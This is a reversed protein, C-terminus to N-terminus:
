GREELLKSYIVCDDGPRYFDPLRGVLNFGASEYFHRAREYDRRGSTEVILRKGGHERIYQEVRTQLARGAGRGQVDPHVCIWYLYWSDLTLTAKGFCAYGAFQGDVEVALLDYDGKLGADVMDLAVQVETESFAGSRTLAAEIADRDAASVSRVLVGMGGPQRRVAGVGM